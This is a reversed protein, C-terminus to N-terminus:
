AREVHARLTPCRAFIWVALMELMQDVALDDRWDEIVACAHSVTTRDRSFLKGVETFSLGFETNALYMAMQRRLAVSARERCTSRLDAIPIADVDAIATEILIRVTERDTSSMIPRHDDSTNSSCDYQEAMQGNNEPVLNEPVCNEAVADYTRLM